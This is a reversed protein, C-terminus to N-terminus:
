PAEPRAHETYRDQQEDLACPRSHLVPFPMFGGPDHGPFSTKRCWTKWVLCPNDVSIVQNDVNQARLLSLSHDQGKM